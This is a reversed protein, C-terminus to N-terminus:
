KLASKSQDPLNHTIIIVEDCENEIYRFGLLQVDVTDYNSWLRVVKSGYLSEEGSEVDFYMFKGDLLGIEYDHPPNVPCFERASHENPAYCVFFYACNKVLYINQKHQIDAM